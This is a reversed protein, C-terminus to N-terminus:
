LLRAKAGIARPRTTRWSETLGVLLLVMLREAITNIASATNNIPAITGLRPPTGQFGVM